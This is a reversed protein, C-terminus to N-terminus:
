GFLVFWIGGHHGSTTSYGLTSRTPWSSKCGGLRQGLFALKPLRGSDVKEPWSSLKLGVTPIRRTKILPWSKDGIFIFHGDEVWIFLPPNRANLLFFNSALTLFFDTEGHNKRGNDNKEKEVM